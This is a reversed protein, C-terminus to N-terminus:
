FNKLEDATNIAGLVLAYADADVTGDDDTVLDRIARMQEDGVLDAIFSEMESNTSIGGAYKDMLRKDHLRKMPVTVSLGMVDVTAVRERREEIAEVKEAVTKSGSVDFGLMRAYGDLQEPSMLMM